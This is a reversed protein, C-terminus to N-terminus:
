ILDLLNFYDFNGVQFIRDMPYGMNAYDRMEEDTLEEEHCQRGCLAYLWDRCLCVHRMLEDFPFLNGPSPVQGKVLDDHKVIENTYCDLLVGEPNEYLVDNEEDEVELPGDSEIDNRPGIHALSLISLLMVAADFQMGGMEEKNFDGEFCVGISEYNYGKTHAGAAWLPRGQYIEGDKRIFYHYAIGAMGKNIQAKHVDEVTHPRSDATHHLIIYKISDQNLINLEEKFELHTRYLM